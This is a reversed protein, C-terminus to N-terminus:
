TLSHDQHLKPSQVCMRFIVVPAPYFFNTLIYTFPILSVRRCRMEFFGTVVDTGKSIDASFFHLLGRTTAVM